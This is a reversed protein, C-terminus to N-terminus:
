NTKLYPPSRTYFEVGKYIEKRLGDVAGDMKYRRRDEELATFLKQEPQTPDVKDMPRKNGWRNISIDAKCMLTYAVAGAALSASFMYTVAQTRLSKKIKMHYNMGRILTAAM